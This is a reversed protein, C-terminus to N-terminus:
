ILLSNRFKELLTVNQIKVVVSNQADQVSAIKRLNLSVLCRPLFTATEVERGITPHFVPKQSRNFNLRWRRLIDIGRLTENTQYLVTQNVM